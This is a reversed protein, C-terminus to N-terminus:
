QHILLDEYFAGYPTGPLSLQIELVWVGQVTKSDYKTMSGRHKLQHPFEAIIHGGAKHSELVVERKAAVETAFKYLTPGDAETKEWYAKVEHFIERVQKQLFLFQPNNGLVFTDGVDAEFGNLVPGYDLFFIDDEKLLVTQDPSDSFGKTSETGFRIKPAHWNKSVGGKKLCAQVTKRATEENMGPKLLAASEQLLVWAHDRAKKM